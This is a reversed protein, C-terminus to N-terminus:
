ESLFYISAKAYPAFLGNDRDVIILMGCFLLDALEHPQKSKVFFDQTQHLLIFSNSSIIIALLGHIVKMVLILMKFGFFKKLLECKAVKEILIPNFHDFCFYANETFFSMVNDSSIPENMLGVNSSTSIPM